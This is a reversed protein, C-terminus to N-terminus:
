VVEIVEEETGGRSGEILLACNGTYGLPFFVTFEGDNVSDRKVEYEADTEPNKASITVYKGEVDPDTYEVTVAKVESIDKVVVTM